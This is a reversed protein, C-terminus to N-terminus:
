FVFYFCNLRCVINKGSEVDAMRPHGYNCNREDAKGRHFIILGLIKILQDKNMQHTVSLLNPRTFLFIKFTLFLIESM